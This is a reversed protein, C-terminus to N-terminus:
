NVIAPHTVQMPLLDASFEGSGQLASFSHLAWWDSMIFGEYGMSGKLDKNMIEETAGDPKCMEGHRMEGMWTRVCKMVQLGEDDIFTKVLDSLSFQLDQEDLHFLKM